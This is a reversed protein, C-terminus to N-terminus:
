FQQFQSLILPSRDNKAFRKKKIKKLPPPSLHSMYPLILRFDHVLYKLMDKKMFTSNTHFKKQQNSFRQGTM